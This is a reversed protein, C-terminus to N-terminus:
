IHILSLATAACVQAAKTQLGQGIECGGVNLLVSGDAKNIDIKCGIGSHFRLISHKAPTISIGRKRWRSRANFAEVDQRQTEFGSEDKLRQWLVPMSYGRLPFRPVPIGGLGGLSTWGGQDMNAERVSSPSLSMEAAIADM